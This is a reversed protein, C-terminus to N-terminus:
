PPRRNERRAIRLTSGAIVVGGILTSRSPTDSFMLWGLAAAWVLELFKVSQTASIDAITSSRTLCDHGASGLVGCLLFSGWQQTSPTQWQMLGLPLSCLVGAFGRGARGGLAGM